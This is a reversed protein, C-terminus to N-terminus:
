EQPPGPVGYAPQIAMDEVADSGVDESVADDETIDAPLGYAPQPGMDEMADPVVIDAPLGYAPQPGTDMSTDAATTDTASSSGSDSCGGLGTLGLLSAAVVGTRGASMVRGLTARGQGTSVDGFTSGCFPCVTESLTSAVRIHAHCSPCAAMGTRSVRLKSVM